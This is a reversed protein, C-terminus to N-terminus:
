KDKQAAGPHLILYKGDGLVLGGTEPYREALAGRKIVVELEERSSWRSLLSQSSEM